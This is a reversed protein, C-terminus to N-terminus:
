QIGYRRLQAAAAPEGLAEARAAHHRARDLDGSAAYMEALASHAPAFSDDLSTAHLLLGLAEGRKHQMRLLMALQYYPRPHGPEAAIWAKQEAINRETDQDLAFEIVERRWFSM